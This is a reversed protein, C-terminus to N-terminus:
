SPPLDFPDPEREQSRRLPEASRDPRAQTSPRMLEAPTEPETAGHAVPVPDMGPAATLDKRSGCGGLALALGALAVIAGARM